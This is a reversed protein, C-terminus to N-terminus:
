RQHLTRVSLRNAVHNRLSLGTLALLTGMSVWAGVRFPRPRYTFRVTHGGAPVAVGRFAFNVRHITVPAGDVSAFWGPFFTDSLVLLRRGPADTAIEVASASYADIRALGLRDASGAPEPAEHPPLPAGVLAVRRFDVGGEVIARRAREDSEVAVADVLFARPQVDLNEYLPAASSPVRRFRSPDLTAREPAFLYKINLLNLAAVPSAATATHAMGRREFVDGLLLGIRAPSMGDYGRPDSLGMAMSTNPPLAGDLGVVRFPEGGSRLMSIEPLEPFVEAPPVLVHFGRGFALLDAALLVTAACAFMWRSVVLRARMTVIAWAAMGLMSAVVCGNRAFGSVGARELGASLAPHQAWAIAVAGAASLCGIAVILTPWWSADRVHWLRDVGHAALVIASLVVLFGFRTLVALGVLPIKAILSPLFPFGYMLAVGALAAGAFFRPRWETRCASVGVLALLWVAVGAYVQQECYNSINGLANPVPVYAGRTPHGLFDPVVGTIAVIPALTSPNTSWARRLEGVLSQDLYELFPLLQVSLLLIGLTFGGVVLALVPFPRASQRAGALAYLGSVALVKFATEPHGGALVLATAAVVTLCSRWTLQACTRDIAWLMWPAWATVASIPHEIWVVNFPDLLYAVGAFIAAARALGLSRVYAFMGLGGVLLRASAIAVTAAPLPLLYALATFPSFLASQYTGLFPHGTFSDPNWLPLTGHRVADVAHLLYPYFVLPVDALLANVPQTGDRTAHAHWPELSSLVNAQSLVRGQTLAEAFLIAVLALALATFALLDRRVTPSPDPGDPLDRTPQRGLLLWFALLVSWAAATRLEDTFGYRLRTLVLSVVGTSALGFALSAAVGVTARAVLGAGIGVSAILMWTWAFRLGARANNMWRWRGGTELVLRDVLITTVGAAGRLRVVPEADPLATVPVLTERFTTDVRVLTAVGDVDVVLDAPSGSAVAATVRVVGPVPGPSPFTVRAQDGVARVTREGVTSAAGFGWTWFEDTVTGVDVM